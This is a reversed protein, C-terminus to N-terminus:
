GREFVVQEVIRGVVTGVAAGIATEYVNGPLTGSLGNEIEEGMQSAVLNCGKPSQMAECYGVEDKMMALEVRDYNPSMAVVPDNRSRIEETIDAYGLRETIFLEPMRSRVRSSATALNVRGSDIADVLEGISGVDVGIADSFETQMESRDSAALTYEAKESGVVSIVDLHGFVVSAIDPLSNEPELLEDPTVHTHWAGGGGVPCRQLDVAKPFRQVPGKVQRPSNCFTRGSELIRGEDQSELTEELIKRKVDDKESMIDFLTQAAPSPSLGRSEM